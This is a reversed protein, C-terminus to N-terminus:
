LNFENLSNEKAHSSYGELSGERIIPSSQVASIMSMAKNQM